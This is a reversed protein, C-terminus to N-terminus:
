IVSLISEDFSPIPKGNKSQYGSELLKDLPYKFVFSYASLIISAIKNM